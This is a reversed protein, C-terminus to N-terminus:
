FVNGCRVMLTEPLRSQTQKSLVPVRVSSPSSMHPTMPEEEMNGVVPSVDSSSLRSRSGAGATLNQSGCLSGLRRLGTLLFSLINQTRLNTSDNQVKSHSAHRFSRRSALLKINNPTNNGMTESDTWVAAALADTTGDM